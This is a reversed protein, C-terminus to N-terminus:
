GGGAPQATDWDRREALSQAVGSYGPFVFGADIRHYSLLRLLKRAEAVPLKLHRMTGRFSAWLTTTLEGDESQQSIQEQTGIRHQLYENLPVAAPPKMSFAPLKLLTFIGLQARLNPISAYPATVLFFRQADVVGSQIDSPNAKNLCWVSMHTADESIEGRVIGRAAFYAAVLPSRTWDLLRTPIGYHQALAM